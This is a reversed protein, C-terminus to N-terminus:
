KINEININMQDELDLMCNILIAKKFYKLDKVRIDGEIIKNEKLIKERKTGKLIPFGPTILKIGDYFVINSFSTDTIRGDKVILIDDCQEKLKLLDKIQTRDEYKYKYEINESYVLKLTNIVRRKYVNFDVKIIEEKYIVRCKLIENNINEPLKIIKNLDIFDDSGFLAKRSNNMRLNHFDINFIRNNKIKISEVLRCM